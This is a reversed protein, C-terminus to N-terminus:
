EIHSYPITGPDAVAHANAATEHSLDIATDIVNHSEQMDPRRTGLIREMDRLGFRHGPM